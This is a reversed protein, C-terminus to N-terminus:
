PLKWIVTTVLAFVLAAFALFALAVIVGIADARRSSPGDPALWFRLSRNVLPMVVWTLLSVSIVNSLLLSEWLPADPWIESIALTLIVATPYLGVLVSLASKWPALAAGAADEAFSFWSGFPSAVRRLEFSEFKKGRALLAAREPSSLWRDLHEASDFRYVITWNDQVGPVPRFREAGRFGPFAHEAETVHQQWALFEAEDKPRVPHSIVVTVINEDRQGVLVQQSAPAAFLDAGRELLERRIPSELWDELHTVSDFRYIVTWEGEPEDPAVLETGLFGSFSAIARNVGDHWRRFEDGRGPRLQHSLVVTM